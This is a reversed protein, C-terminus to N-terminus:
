YIDSFDSWYFKRHWSYLKKRRLSRPRVLNRCSTCFHNGTIWIFDNRYELRNWLVLTGFSPWDDFQPWIAASMARKLVTFESIIPHFNELNICWTALNNGNLRKYAAERDDFGNNFVLAFLLPRVHRSRRVAGLNLQNGYCGQTVM